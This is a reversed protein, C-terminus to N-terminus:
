SSRETAWRLMAKKINDDEGTIEEVAPMEEKSGWYETEELIYVFSEIHNVNLILVHLADEYDFLINDRLEHGEPISNDFYIGFDEYLINSLSEENFHEIFAGLISEIMCVYEENAMRSLQDANKRFTTCKDRWICDIEVQCHEVFAIKNRTHEKSFDRAKKNFMKTWLRSSCNDTDRNVVAQYAKSFKSPMGFHILNLNNYPNAHSTNYYGSWELLEMALVTFNLQHFSRRINDTFNSFCAAGWQISGDNNSPQAIYPHYTEQKTRYSTFDSMPSDNLGRYSVSMHMSNPKEVYKMMKRLSCYFMLKVGTIPVKQILTSDQCVSLEGPNVYCDLYFTAQRENNQPIHIYPAFSVKGETANVAQNVSEEIKNCFDTLKVIYEDINVDHAYGEKKLMRKLKECDELKRAMWSIRYRSNECTRSLYKGLGSSKKDLMLQKRAYQKIKDLTGPRWNWSPTVSLIETNSGYGSLVRNCEELKSFFEDQPGTAIANALQQSPERLIDLNNVNISRHGNYLEISDAM